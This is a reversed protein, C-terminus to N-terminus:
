QDNLVTKPASKSVELQASVRQIQGKLNTLAAEFNKHQQAVMAELKEVKRHEKLFENLLMANVAEYRVSYPKGQKDRLVLEPSVKEVEEAILGFHVGGEPDIESNYRFSVPRLALLVTSCDDMSEINQKFRASSVATGLQGSSNVYVSIGNPVPTGHIGTIFTPTQPGGIRTTNSEDGGAVTSIYINNSGSFLGGGAQYGVGLNGNGTRNAYL